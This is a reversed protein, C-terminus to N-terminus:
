DNDPLDDIVLGSATIVEAVRDLTDINWPTGDLHDTIRELIVRTGEPIQEIMDDTWEARGLLRKAAGNLVMLLVQKHALPLECPVDINRGRILVSYTIHKMCPQPSLQVVIMVDEGVQFARKVFGTM